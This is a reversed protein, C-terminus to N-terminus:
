YCLKIQFVKFPTIETIVEEEIANRLEKALEKLRNPVDKLPRQLLWGIATNLDSAKNAPACLKQKSSRYCQAIVAVEEDRDIHLIDCKKDDSGDTISEAAVSHLDDIQYRLALAFLGVANDGYDELDDRASLAQEWNKV